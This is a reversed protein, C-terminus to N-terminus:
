DNNSIKDLANVLDESRLHSYRKLMQMSKHGSISAVQQDSLGATVLRSVTEHRLDHFHFDAMGLKKKILQWSKSFQYPGRKGDKGPEGFFILDTGAPQLPNSIAQKFTGTAAKSLPVTRSESNKTDHLRVVRNKLDVQTRRIGVIESQRMGTELAIRVIWGLMPNSHQDVATLLKQEENKELRRNRGNGPNPKRINTVPNYALGIHWERIAVNFLHSLLALELRVSNNAKGQELRKDRFKAVLDPTVAALSYKGFYATIERIRAGERRQTSEKKTPVVDKTYRELAKSVLMKESPSRQIFVGRVMEDEATRSWDEADRKTRFTKGTTPWGARRIIAKWTGAPTKTITAM